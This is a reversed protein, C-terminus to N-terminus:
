GGAGGGQGRGRRWRGRESPLKFAEGTGGLGPECYSGVYRDLAYCYCNSKVLV